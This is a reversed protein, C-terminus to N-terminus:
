RRSPPAGFFDRYYVSFRGQHFFEFDMAIDTLRHYELRAIQDRAQHLRIFRKLETFGTGFAEQISLQILRRSCRHEAAFDDLTTGRNNQLPPIWLAAEVERAIARRKKEGASLKLSEVTLIEDLLASLMSDMDERLWMLEVPDIHDAHPANFVEFLRGAMNRVAEGQASLPLILAESAGEQIRACLRERSSAPLITTALEPAINVVYARSPAKAVVDWRAGDYAVVMLPQSSKHGLVNSEASECGLYIQLCGAAVMTEAKLAGQLLAKDELSVHASLELTQKSVRLPGSCMKYLPQVGGAPGAGAGISYEKSETIRPYGQGSSAM